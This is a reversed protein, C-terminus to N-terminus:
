LLPHSGGLNDLRDAEEICRQSWDELRSKFSEVCEEIEQCQRSVEKFKNITRTRLDASALRQLEPQNSPM